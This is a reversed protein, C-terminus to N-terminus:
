LDELESFVTPKESISDELGMARLVEAARGAENLPVIIWAQMGIDIAFPIRRAWLEAAVRESQPLSVDAIGASPGFLSAWEWGVAFVGKAELRDLGYRPGVAWMADWEEASLREPYCIEVSGLAHGAESYLTTLERLRADLETADTVVVRPTPALELPDGPAPRPATCGVLGISITAALLSGAGATRMRIKM